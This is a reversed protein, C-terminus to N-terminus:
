ASWSAETPVFLIRLAGANQMKEATGEGDADTEPLLVSLWFKDVSVSTFGDIALAPHNLAPLGSSLLWAAFGTLAAALITTEFTIPIFAPVSWLPRGGVNLPYNVATLYGQLGFAGAAGTLGAAFVLWPIRTRRIGLKTELEPLPHPAYAELRAREFDALADIGRELAAVSDFEALLRPEPNM